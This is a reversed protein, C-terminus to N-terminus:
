SERQAEMPEPNFSEGVRLSMKLILASLRPVAFVPLDIPAGLEISEAVACACLRENAQGGNHVLCHRVQIAWEFFGRDDADIFIPLGLEDNAYELLKFDDRAKAAAALRARHLVFEEMTSCGLVESLAVMGNTALRRPDRLLALEVVDRMYGNLADVLRCWAWDALLADHHYKDGLLDQALDDETGVHREVFAAFDDRNDATFQTVISSWALLALVSERLRTFELSARM